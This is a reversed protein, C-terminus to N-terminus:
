SFLKDIGAKIDEIPITAYGFLIRSDTSNKAYYASLPYIKIAYKEANALVNQRADKLDCIVHMGAEQGTVAIGHSLLAEVLQDRKKKYHLRMKNLHKEFYGSNIFLALLKQNIYSVPSHYNPIQLNQPLVMYSTKIAPSISRSFNGFYIVKEQTDYSKLSPITAGTYRFESDYDDELIYRQGKEAWKLLALRRKIPYIIGTPFQHSPTVAIVNTEQPVQTLDMGFADLPVEQYPFGYKKLSHNLHQYGPNEVAFQTQQPLIESLIHVLDESGYSILINDPNALFGRSSYLYNAIAARLELLGKGTDKDYIEDGLEDSLKKLCKKMYISLNSHPDIGSFSFDYRYTLPKDRKIIPIEAQKVLHISNAIDSVYFGSRAKVYIYGEDVLQHYAMEITNQSINLHSALQRKSPLKEHEKLHHHNIENKIYQYIQEYYFGKQKDLNITLTQM